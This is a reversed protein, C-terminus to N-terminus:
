KESKINEEDLEEKFDRLTQIHWKTKRTINRFEKSCFFDVLFEKPVYYNRGHKFSLFRNECCWLNVTDRSYGTLKCIDSVSMLDKYNSLLSKYRKRLKCESSQSLSLPLGLSCDTSTGYWGSPAAYKEPNIKKDLIYDKIDEKRIKYYSTNGGKRSNPVINNILLYRATSKSIHCLKCFQSENVIDPIKNWDISNVDVYM